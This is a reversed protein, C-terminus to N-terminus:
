PLLVLRYFRRPGNAVSDTASLTAGGATAAAGVNAWNSSTLESNSQLQYVGGAETSWTLRLAGNTLTVAQFEPAAPVVTLRFVTGAGGAGGYYTTGYFSGDRGQVLGAQPDAGDNLGTFSYLTTLTGNTSIKFVAGNGTAGGGYTAGYFNGDSGQVLGAPPGNGDDFSTFSHLSTLVGITSIKFVTGYFWGNTGGAFTTGYLYGDSGQVLEAQPQGGDDGGTFSYLTTLEGNTSIKFVTGAGLSPSGSPGYSLGGYTGGGSTTGYLNGDSAQVLGAKPLAGDNTGTFSHLTTLAGNPGIKFVTGYGYAAASANYPYNTPGGYETTGYFNGDSGQVLAAQPNAGDNTGTFSYLRRLVGNTSIKFVAGREVTGGYYTTGYFNGDSAQVLNAKPNAGDDGTESFSCLTTLAGDTSIKFVSGADVLGTPDGYTTGYLSGDSGQVLGNPASSDGSPFSYVTTPAGNTSIKFVTGNGLKIGSGDGYFDYGHIYGSTTGYLYGDSGQVLGAGSGAGDNGGTFSHLTTLLGNTSVKFVTGCDSGNGGFSTTGYFNGDSGQLLGAEPGAGDADSLGDVGFVHLSTLAGNTTIKFVAGWGYPGGGYTTGYFNGDRGEVLGAEPNAGDNGGTFSYLSTYAGNTSIKFVTGYGYTVPGIFWGNTGGLSTTGYFSGDRGQVLGAAPTGGDTFLDGDSPFSHLTTLAGNASITFVTGWGNTGSKSTTGYFNGDSAEVLGAQPYGGDNTGNFPHLTTLAGNTSIKFVTGRGITGGNETTGYFDGDRGQVLGAKPIAGDSGGTFSHLSTLAGHSSLKFVTGFPGNTGGYYTTGYFNGDRGQVLGSYPNAGNTFIGFSHLNTFVVGAGSRFAPLLLVAACLLRMLLALVPKTGPRPDTM